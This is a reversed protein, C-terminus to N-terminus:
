FSEKSDVHTAVNGDVFARDKYASITLEFDHECTSCRFPIAVRHSQGYWNHQPPYHTIRPITSMNVADSGCSPCLIDSIM